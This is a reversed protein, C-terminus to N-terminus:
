APWGNLQQCRLVCIIDTCLAYLNPPFDNAGLGLLKAIKNGIILDFIKKRPKTAQLDLSIRLPM